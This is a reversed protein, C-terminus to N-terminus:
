KKELDCVFYAVFTSVFGSFLLAGLFNTDTKLIFFIFFLIFAIFFSIWFESCEDKM